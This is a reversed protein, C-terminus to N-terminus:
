WFTCCVRVDTGRAKLDVGVIDLVAAVAYVGLRVVAVILLAVLATVWPSRADRLRARWPRMQRNM